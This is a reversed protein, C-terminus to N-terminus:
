SKFIGNILNWAVSGPRPLQSEPPLETSKFWHAELIESEQIKIEGSKYEATLALMLQDPFPWAQSGCYKIRQVEILPKKYFGDTAAWSSIKFLNQLGEKNKPIILLLSKGNKPSVKLRKLYKREKIIM